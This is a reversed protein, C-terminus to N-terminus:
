GNTFFVAAPVGIKILMGKFHNVDFHATFLVCIGKFLNHSVLHYIAFLGLLFNYDATSEFSSCRGM